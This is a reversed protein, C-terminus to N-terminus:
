RRVSRVSLRRGSAPLSTRCVIRTLRGTM